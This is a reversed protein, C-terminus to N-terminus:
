QATEYSAVVTLVGPPPVKLWVLANRAPEYMLPCDTPVASGVPDEDSGTASPPAKSGAETPALDANPDGSEAADTASGGLEDASCVRVVSERPAGAMSTDEFVLELSSLRAPVHSLYLRPPRLDSALSALPLAPDDISALEGGTAAVYSAYAEAGDPVIAHVTGGRDPDHLVWAVFEGADPNVSLDDQGSVFVIHLEADHRRFGANVGSTQTQLARYATLRGLGGEVDLPGAERWLAPFRQRNTVWGLMVGVSRADGAHALAIGVHYDFGQDELGDFLEPLVDAVRALQEASTAESPDVVVLVDAQPAAVDFREVVLTDDTDPVYSHEPLGVVVSTECSGLSPDCDVCGLLWAM